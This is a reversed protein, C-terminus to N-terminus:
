WWHDSWTLLLTADFRLMVSNETLSFWHQGISGKVLPGTCFDNGYWSSMMIFCIVNVTYIRVLWVYIQCGEIHNTFADGEPACLAALNCGCYNSGRSGLISCSLWTFSWGNESQFYLKSVGCIGYRWIGACIPTLMAIYRVIETFLFKCDFDSCCGRCCAM